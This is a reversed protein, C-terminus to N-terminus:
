FFFLFCTLYAIPFTSVKQEKLLLLWGALQRNNDREDNVKSLCCCCSCSRKTVAQRGNFVPENLVSKFCSIKCDITKIREKRHRVALENTRENKENIRRKCLVAATSKSENELIFVEKEIIRSYLLYTLAFVLIATENRKPM